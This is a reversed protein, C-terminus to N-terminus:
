KKILFAIENYLERALDFIIILAHELYISTIELFGNRIKNQFCNTNHNKNTIRGNYHTICNRIQRFCTIEKRRKRNTNWSTPLLDSMILFDIKDEFASDNFKKIDLKIMEKNKNSFFVLTQNKDKNFYFDFLFKMSEYLFAELNMFQICIEQYMAYQKFDYIEQIIEEEVTDFRDIIETNSDNTEELVDLSTDVPINLQELFNENYVDILQLDHLHKEEDKFKIEDVFYDLNFIGLTRLLVIYNFIESYKTFTKSKVGNSKKDKNEKRKKLTEFDDDLINVIKAPLRRSPFNTFSELSVLTFLRTKLSSIIYDTYRNQYDRGSDNKGFSIIDKFLHKFLEKRSYWKEKKKQEAEKQKKDNELTRKLGPYDVMHLIANNISDANEDILIELKPLYQSDLGELRVLSALILYKDNIDRYCALEKELISIYKQAQSDLFGLVKITNSRVNGVSCNLAELFLDTATDQFHFLSYPIQEKVKSSRDNRFAHTLAPLVLEPNKSINGLAKVALLRLSSDNSDQLITIIHPIVELRDNFIGFNNFEKLAVKQKNPDDFDSLDILIQQFDQELLVREKEKDM